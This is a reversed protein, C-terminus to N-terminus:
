LGGRNYGEYLCINKVIAEPANVKWALELATLGDRTKTFPSAQHRLLIMMMDSYGLSIALHLPTMGDKENWTEVHHRDTYGCFLDRLTKSDRERVADHYPTSVPPPLHKISSDKKCYECACPPNMRQKWEDSDYYGSEMKQIIESFEGETLSEHTEDEGELTEDEEEHTKDEM